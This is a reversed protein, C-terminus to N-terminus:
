LSLYILLSVLYEALETRMIKLAKGIQNEVTKISIELIDAIEQYKLEEFRSMKFIKGCEKPLKEIALQVKEEVESFSNEVLFAGADFEYQTATAYEAKITQHKIKNMSQNYVSRYLYSKLSEKIDLEERKEWFKVFINQVLDEADDEDKLFSNAYRCLEAYSSKFLREFARQDGKQIEEWYINLNPKM